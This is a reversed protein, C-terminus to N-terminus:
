WKLKEIGRYQLLEKDLPSLAEMANDMIAIRNRAVSVRQELKNIKEQIQAKRELNREEPSDHKGGGGTVLDYRVGQPAAELEIEAKLNQILLDTNKIFGKWAMYHAFWDKVKTIEDM